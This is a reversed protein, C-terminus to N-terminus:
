LITVGKFFDHSRPQYKPLKQFIEHNIVPHRTRTKVHKTYQRGRECIFPEWRPPSFQFQELKLLM